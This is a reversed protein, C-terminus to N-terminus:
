PVIEANKSIYKQFPNNDPKITKNEDVASLVKNDKIAVLNNSSKRSAAIEANFEDDIFKLLKKEYANRSLYYVIEPRPEIPTDDIRNSYLVKNHLMEEDNPYILLYSAVSRLAKPAKKVKYYAMQLYNYFDGLLEDGKVGDLTKLKESCGQKCQLCYTFHNSISATFDPLWGQDFSSECLVRCRDDAAFYSHLAEEMYAIVQNWDEDGYSNVANLYLSYFEETEHNTVERPNVQPLTLYYKLNNKALFNDPHRVLYTFAASAAKQIDNDKYYCNQIYLYPELNEIDKLSKGDPAKNFKVDEYNLRKCKMFCLTKRIMKEYFHLDEINQQNLYDYEKNACQMRCDAIATLVRKHKAIATELDDICESWNEELYNEVGRRYLEDYTEEVEESTSWRLLSLLVFFLVEKSINRHYFM